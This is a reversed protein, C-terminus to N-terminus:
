TQRTQANAFLQRGLPNVGDLTGGQADFRLIAIGLEDAKVRAFPSVGHGAFVLGTRGDSAVVAAAREVLGIELNGRKNEVWGLYRSGYLDCILRPEGTAVVADEAGLYHM